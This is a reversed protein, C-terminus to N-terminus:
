IDRSHSRNAGTGKIKLYPWSLVTHGYFYHDDVLLQDTEIEAPSLDMKNDLQDAEM